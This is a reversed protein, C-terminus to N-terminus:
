TDTTTGKEEEKSNAHGLHELFGNVLDVTGQDLNTVLSEGDSIIMNKRWWIIVPEQVSKDGSWSSMWKSVTLYVLIFYSEDSAAMIDVNMIITPIVSSENEKQPRINLIRIGANKLNTELRDYVAQIHTNNLGIGSEKLGAAVAELNFEKITTDRPNEFGKFYSAGNFQTMIRVYNVGKLLPHFPIVAEIETEEANESSVINGTQALLPLIFFLLATLIIITKKM